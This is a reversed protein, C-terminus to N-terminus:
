QPQTCGDEWLAGPQKLSLVTKMQKHENKIEDRLFHTPGPVMCATLLAQHFGELLNDEGGQRPWARGDGFLGPKLIGRQGQCSHLQTPLPLASLGRVVTPCSYCNEAFLGFSGTILHCLSFSCSLTLVAKLVFSGQDYCAFSPENKEEQIEPSRM